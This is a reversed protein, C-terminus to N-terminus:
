SSKLLKSIGPRSRRRLMKISLDGWLGKIGTRLWLKKSHSPLLLNAGRLGPCKGIYGAANLRHQIAAADLYQMIMPDSMLSKALPVRQEIARRSAKEVLQHEASRGIAAGPATSVSEALTLGRTRELNERLNPAHVELGAAIHRMKRLAGATLRFIKPPTEWEAHRPLSHSTYLRGIGRHRADHTRVVDALTTWQAM